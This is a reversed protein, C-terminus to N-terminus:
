ISTLGSLEFGTKLTGLSHETDGCSPSVTCIVSLKAQPLIFAQALVKTLATMRFPPKKAQNYIRICEKLAYLGLVIKKSNRTFLFSKRVIQAYLIILFRFTEKQITEEVLM